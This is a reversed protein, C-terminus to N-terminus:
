RVIKETEHPSGLYAATQTLPSEDPHNRHRFAGIWVPHRGLLNLAKQSFNKSRPYEFVGTEPPTM